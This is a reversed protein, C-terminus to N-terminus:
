EKEIMPGPVYWWMDRPKVRALQDAVDGVKFIISSSREISLEKEIGDRIEELEESPIEVTYEADENLRVQVHPEGSYKGVKEAKLVVSEEDSIAEEINEKVKELDDPIIEVVCDYGKAVNRVEKSETGTNSDL